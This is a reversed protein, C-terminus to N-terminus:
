LVDFLNKDRLDIDVISSLDVDKSSGTVDSQLISQILSFYPSIARTGVGAYAPNQIIEFNSAISRKKDKNNIILSQRANKLKKLIEKPDGTLDLDGFV